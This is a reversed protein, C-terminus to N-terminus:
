LPCAHIEGPALCTGLPPTTTNNPGAAPCILCTDAAPCQADTSCSQSAPCEHIAIGEPRCVHGVVGVASACIPDCTEHSPCQADTTCKLIPPTTTPLHCVAPSVDCVSPTPCEASTHCRLAVDLDSTGTDTPDSETACAFVPSLAFVLIFHKM